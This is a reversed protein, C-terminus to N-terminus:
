GGLPWLLSHGAAAQQAHPPSRLDTLAAFRARFTAQARGDKGDLYHDIFDFRRSATSGRALM